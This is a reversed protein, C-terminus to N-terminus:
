LAYSFFDVMDSQSFAITFRSQQQGGTGVLDSFDPGMVSSRALVQGLGRNLRVLAFQSAQNDV